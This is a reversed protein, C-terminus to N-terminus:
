RQCAEIPYCFPIVLKRQYVSEYGAYPLPERMLAAEISRQTIPDTLCRAFDVGSVQGGRLQTVEVFCRLGPQLNDPRLWNRDIHQQLALRYRGLLADDIGENGLREAPAATPTPTPASQAVAQERLDTLQKLREEELRRKKEAEERARRVEALQREREAEQQALRQRREAEQQQKEELAVQEQRRREEQERRANEAQLAAERVIREQETTDPRPVPQQVQPQPPVPAEQPKPEPKPQPLPPKPQPQPQPKPQPKPASPTLVLKETLVAEIAGGAVSLPPRTQQFLLGVFLLALLVVHLGISAGVARLKDARTEM